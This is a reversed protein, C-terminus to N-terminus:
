AAKSVPVSLCGREYHRKIYGLIQKPTIGKVNYTRRMVSCEIQMRIRGAFDQRITVSFNTYAGEFHLQIGLGCRIDQIAQLRTLKSADMMRSTIPAVEM